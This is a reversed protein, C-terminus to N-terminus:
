SNSIQCCRIGIDASRQFSFIPARSGDAVFDDLTMCFTFSINKQLTEAVARFFELHFITRHGYAMESRSAEPKPELSVYDNHFRYLAAWNTIANLHDFIAETEVRNIGKLRWPAMEGDGLRPAYAHRNEM